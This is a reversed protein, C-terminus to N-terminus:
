FCSKFEKFCFYKKDKDSIIAKDKAIRWNINLDPDDFRIGDEHDKSYFNDVKYNIIAENSIVSFGHAFGRPILLQKHNKDSLEVEIYKGYTPSNLRLDVAVDIIHGVLVRILKAQAFEGKQFHLGRITGYSSKSINDQVFNYNLGEQDFIRKNYGEYFFGRADEFIKPEIIYIGDIFTKVFTM